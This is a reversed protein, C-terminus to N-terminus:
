LASGDAKDQKKKKMVILGLISHHVFDILRLYSGAESGSCMDPPKDKHERLQEAQYEPARLLPRAPFILLGQRTALRAVRGCFHGGGDRTTSQM